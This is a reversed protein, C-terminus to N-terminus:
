HFHILLKNSYKEGLKKIIRYIDWLQTTSFSIGVITKKHRGSIINQLETILENEHMIFYIKLDDFYEKTEIAGVLANFSYKNQKNYYLVLATDKKM